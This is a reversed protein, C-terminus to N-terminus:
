KKKKERRNVRAAPRPAQDLATNNLSSPSSTPALSAPAAPLAASISDLASQIQEGHAQERARQAALLADRKAKSEAEALEAKQSSALADAANATLKDNTVEFTTGDKTKVKVSESAQAVIEVQTGAPIGIIGSETIAKVRELLFRIRDASEAMARHSQATLSLLVLFITLAKPPNQM